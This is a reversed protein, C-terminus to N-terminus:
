QSKARESLDKTPVSGLKFEYPNSVSVKAVSGLIEIVQDERLSRNAIEQRMDARDLPPIRIAFFPWLRKSRYEQNRRPFASIPEAKYGSEYRFVYEGEESSLRGVLVRKVATKKYVELAQEKPTKSPARILKVGWEKAQSLLSFLDKTM